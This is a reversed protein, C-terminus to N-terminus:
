AVRRPKFGEAAVQEVLDRHKPLLSPANDGQRRIEAFRARASDFYRLSGRRGSLDTKYGMGYLVYQWNHETFIDHSLDVDLFSPARNRWIELKDKLRDSISAPHRNDRWFETDTRESICYHLKIFDIVHEYRLAMHYNFQRASTEYDGSWPFLNNVLLAAIEAFGIGTAELPEIFGASLGIAVCNKRWQVPRYGAEFKLIRASLGENAPGIHARLVEEARDDSTHDSSYVYGVGRRHALGIDWAWGNEKATSITCSAIPQDPREYPVQLVVARDAFLQDRCSKFPSGLAKGILQARFGTCDVYLDARVEGSKRAVLCEISGDGSLRVDDVTDVVHTVGQELARTRLVRAFAAADFHYAYGLPAAYNDHSVLKPALCADVVRRQVSNVDAWRADGAVGLLWYPLLDLGSEQSQNQFPHFYEDGPDDQPTRSWNLFRIGQKFTAEGHRVLLTEDLGILNLIKRISPFTGEGVGIIGIDESEIVTIQVGEALDASLMRALYCATIWGATGGGVIVLRKGV